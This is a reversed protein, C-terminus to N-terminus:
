VVLIPMKTTYVWHEPQDSATEREIKEVIPQGTRLIKQEDEFAERAHEIPFYDFDTKGIAEQPDDLGFTRALAKSILVFRSQDDKFYIADPSNDMLLHLMYREKKLTEEIKVQPSQKDKVAKQAADEEKEKQLRVLKRNLSNIVSILESKTKNLYNM